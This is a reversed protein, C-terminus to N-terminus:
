LYNQLFGQDMHFTKAKALELAMTSNELLTTIITVPEVIQNTFEVIEGSPTTITIKKPEDAKFEKSYLIMKPDDATLDFREANGDLLWKVVAEADKDRDNAGVIAPLDIDERNNIMDIITGCIGNSIISYTFYLAENEPTDSLDDSELDCICEHVAQFAILISNGTLVGYRVGEASSVVADVVLEYKRQSDKILRSGIELEIFRGYMTRLRKALGIRRVASPEDHLQARLDDYRAKSVPGLPKLLRLGETYDYQVDYVTSLLSRMKEIHALVHDFTALDEIIMRGDSMAQYLLSEFSLSNVLGGIGAEDTIMTSIDEIQEDSYARYNTLTMIVVNSYNNIDFDPTNDKFGNLTQIVEKCTQRTRESMGNCLIIYTCPSAAGSSDTVVQREMLTTITETHVIDLIGNCHLVTSLHTIKGTDDFPRISFQKTVKFMPQTHTIVNFDDPSNSENVLIYAQEMIPDKIQQYVRAAFESDQMCTNLVCKLEDETMQHAKAKIKENIKSVATNWVKRTLYRSITPTAKIQGRICDYLNTYLVALTTTGDGVIEGQHYVAQYLITLVYMALENDFRMSHIVEKGDRTYYPNNNKVVFADTAYPGFVTTIDDHIERMVRDVIERMYDGRICNSQMNITNKNNNM